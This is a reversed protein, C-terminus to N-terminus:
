NWASNGNQIMVRTDKAEYSVTKEAPCSIAWLHYLQAPQCVYSGKQALCVLFDVGLLCVLGCDTMTGSILAMNVYILSICCCVHPPGM